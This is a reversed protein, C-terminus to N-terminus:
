GEDKLRFLKMLAIEEPEYEAQIRKVKRSKKANFEDLTIGSEYSKLVTPHIYSSRCVTPTNGLQDAVKKVAKLINKKL